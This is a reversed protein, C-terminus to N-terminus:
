NHDALSASFLHRDPETSSIAPLCNQILPPSSLIQARSASSDEGNSATALPRSTFVAPQLLSLPHKSSKYLTSILPPATIVQLESLHKYITLLDLIFDM